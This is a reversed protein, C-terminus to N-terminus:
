EPDWTLEFRNSGDRLTREYRQERGMDDRLVLTVDRTPVFVGLMVNNEDRFDAEIDDYFQPFLARDETAFRGDADTTGLATRVRLREDPGEVGPGTYVSLVSATDTETRLQVRYYGGHLDDAAEWATTRSGATLEDRVLTHVPRGELDFVDLAVTTAGSLEYRLYTINYFPNPYGSNLNFEAPTTPVEEVIVTPEVTESYEISGDVNDIRIRFLAYEVDREVEVVYDSGSGAPATEAVAEFEDEGQGAEVVFREVGDADNTGWEVSYPEDEPAYVNFYTIEAPRAIRDGGGRGDDLAYEM